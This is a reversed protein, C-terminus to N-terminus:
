MFYVINNLIQLFDDHQVLVQVDLGFDGLSQCGALGNNSQFGGDNGV